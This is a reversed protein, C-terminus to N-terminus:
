GTGELHVRRGVGHVKARHQDELFHTRAETLQVIGKWIAEAVGPDARAATCMVMFERPSRHNSTDRVIHNWEKDDTLRVAARLTSIKKCLTKHPLHPATWAAKHCEPRCYRVIQYRSCVSSREQIESTCEVHLCQNRNRVEVMRNHAAGFQTSIAMARHPTGEPRTIFTGDPAIASRLGRVLSFWRRCDDMSIVPKLHLLIPEVQVAVAYMDEYVPLLNLVCTRMDVESLTWFLANACATVPSIFVRWQEDPPAHPSYSELARQLHRTALPFLSPTDLAERGFPEWFRALAGILAFISYGEPVVIAWRALGRLGDQEGGPVPIVDTICSPWPQKEPPTNEKAKRFKGPGLRRFYDSITGCIVFLVSELVHTLPRNITKHSAMVSPNCECTMLKKRLAFHEEDSCPGYLLTLAARLIPGQRPDDEPKGDLARHIVGNIGVICCAGENMPDRLTLLLLAREEKTVKADRQSRPASPM